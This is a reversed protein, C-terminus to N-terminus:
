RPWRISWLGRLDGLAYNVAQDEPYRELIKAYATADLEQGPTGHCKLCTPSHIFIPQFYSVSDGHAVARPAIDTVTAGAEWQALMGELQRAEASDPRGHPARARNTARRIRAGHAASLSDLLPLANLSCFDVAHAPGGQQMAQQLHASLATFAAHALQGGQELRAAEVADADDAPSPGCGALLLVGVAATRVLHQM